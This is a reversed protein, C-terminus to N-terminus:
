AGPFCMDAFVVGLADIVAIERGDTTVILGRPVVTSAVAHVTTSLLSLGRDYAAVIVDVDSVSLVGDEGEQVQLDEHSRTGRVTGRARSRRLSYYPCQNVPPCKYKTARCQAESLYRRPSSNRM